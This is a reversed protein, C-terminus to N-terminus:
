YTYSNVTKLHVLFWIDFMLHVASHFRLYLCSCIFTGVDTKSGFQRGWFNDGPKAGVSIVFLVGGLGGMTYAPTVADGNLCIRYTELSFVHTVVFVECRTPWFHERFM